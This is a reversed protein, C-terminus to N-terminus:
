PQNGELAAAELLLLKLEEKIQDDNVLKLLYSLFCVIRTNFHIFQSVTTQQHNDPVEIKEEIIPQIGRVGEYQFNRIGKGGNWAKIMDEGALFENEQRIIISYSEKRSVVFKYNKMKPKSM